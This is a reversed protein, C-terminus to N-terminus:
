DVAVREVANVAERVKLPKGRLGADFAEWVQRRIAEQEAIWREYADGNYKRDPAKSPPHTEDIVMIAFDNVFAVDFDDLRAPDSPRMEVGRAYAGKLGEELQM